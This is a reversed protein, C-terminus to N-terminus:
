FGSPEARPTIPPGPLERRIRDVMAQAVTRNGEPTLHHSDVYMVATENAFVDGLYYLGPTGTLRARARAYARVGLRTSEERELFGREEGTLPKGSDSVSPQWFFAVKFGYGRGLVDAQQHNRAFAVVVADALSDSDFYRSQGEILLTDPRGKLEAALRYANTQRVLDLIGPSRKPQRLQEYARAIRLLNYHVGTRGFIFTTTIDNVAGYFLALDPVNGARLESELQVVDQATTFGLQGFNVVCVPRRLRDSLIAQLHAPITGSDPSGMGWVTSGGFVYVRYAGDTCQAGPTERLGASDVRILRGAYPRMRWIYYPHYVHHYALEFEDWYAKAWPKTAYYSANPSDADARVWGITEPRSPRGVVSLGVASALELGVLALATNLLLLATAQHAAAIRPGLLGAVVVGLGAAFGLWRIWGMSSSEGIGIHHGWIALAMVGLGIVVAGRRLRDWPVGNAGSRM